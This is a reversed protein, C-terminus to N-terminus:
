VPKKVYNLDLASWDTQLDFLAFPLNKLFSEYDFTQENIELLQSYPIQEITATKESKLIVHYTQHYYAYLKDGKADLFVLADKQNYSLLKLHDATYLDVQYLANLTKAIIGSVRLGTFSGPGNNMYIAQLHDTISLQHKALLNFILENVLDTLNNKTPVILYDILKQKEYLGIICYSSCLDIYLSVNKM